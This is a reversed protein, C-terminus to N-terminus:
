PGVKDHCERCNCHSTLQSEAKTGMGLTQTGCHHGCKDTLDSEQVILGMIPDLRYTMGAPTGNETWDATEIETAQRWM